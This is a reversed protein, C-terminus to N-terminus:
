ISLEGFTGRPFSVIKLKTQCVLSKFCILEQVSSLWLALRRRAGFALEPNKLEFLPLKISRM